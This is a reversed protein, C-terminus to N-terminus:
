TGPPGFLAQRALAGFESAKMYGVVRYARQEHGDAGYFAITPPGFIGFHNLLAQDQADNGTVDARLLVVDHLLSQVAPDAFTYREMEKCSVCWDAYFDLLVPHGAAKARAVDRELDDLSKITRFPLEQHPGAWRPIPELPDTGGLAAGVILVAGFLGCAMGAARVLWGAATRRRAAPWLVWACLLAPVAWLLLAVSAPVIRTLMWAAVALMLVGFFRKVIDMWAGAKPLLKGASAGAILLPTGMGFSLAFLIAAGRAIAGSQAIVALIAVLAPAVCTTVILASLAGMVAVGGFRGASQRNSLQGLWTQVATPMQLTFLGFMSLALAILVGAFLAVIWPQQFMAQAQQGHGFAAFAAGAITYTLAMGLVYTLSLTFARGTTIRAGHGVIIGSLIPVMPLVCPTFGLLLGLGFFTGLVLLLSGSRVLTALREQESVFAGSGAGGRPLTVHLSKTIPPYCLGAEACGQYTVALATDATSDAGRAVPLQAVLEHHYIEQRGFYEDTKVTGAPLELRGLEVKPSTTHVTIRSRYLYYGDAIQWVLRARDPGDAFADFRFADDPPLFDSDAGAPRHAGLIARIGGGAAGPAAAPLEVKADSLQPPYCLGADACGQIKLKLLLTRAAGASLTLPATVVFAGRFVEQAGFYEDKHIEGRPYIASGLAAGPTASELSMRAKYAYYGDPLNWHVAVSAGDSTVAYRFVQEPPLFREEAARAAFGGPAALTLLFLALLALLRGTPTMPQPKPRAFLRLNALM